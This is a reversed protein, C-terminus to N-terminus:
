TEGILARVRATATPYHRWRGSSRNHLPKRVQWASATRVAHSDPSVHLLPEHSLSCFALARTLEAEPATVLADYSFDYIDASFRAQWHAMIRRYQLFWHAIDELAWGYRVSDAFYLFFVSLINDVPARVTHIIPASPFMAKILGIYLFNDSRKDTVIDAGPHLTRIREVYASRLEMVEHSTLKALRLPDNDLREAVLWPIIDLEGGAAVMSHRALLQEALTSGSRFMGCLFIPAPDGIVEEAVPLPPAAILANILQEHADKDYRGSIGLRNRVTNNARLITDFAEDYRGEADLAAGLAFLIEATQDLDLGPNYLADSLMEIRSGAKGAFLDIATLRALARGHGPTADLAREYADRAEDVAGIDECLNGLNLWALTFDPNLAVAKLLEEKASAVDGLHESFIVARNLHVEEGRDVGQALSAAYSVLADEFLHATRQLWALNFWDDPRTPDQAVLHRYAAIAENIQGSRLLREAEIRDPVSPM